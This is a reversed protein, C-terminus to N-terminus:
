DDDGRNPNGAAHERNRDQVMADLGLHRGQDVGDSSPGCVSCRPMRLVDDAGVSLDAFDYHVVRGVTFGFGSSLQNVLELELCGAVVHAFGPLNPGPARGADGAVAEYARYGEPAEVNAYRRRRFCEYCPTEGPLITPGVVGDLGAIQGLLLPTEIDHVLRNLRALADPRQRDAAHVVLDAAEIADPLEGRELSVVEDHSARASSTDGLGLFRVDEIGMEVADAALITAPRGSGVLTVTSSAVREMADASFQDTARLYGTVDERELAREGAYLLGEDQLVYIVELVDRRDAEDFADLIEEVANTGDLMAVLDALMGDEDDDTLDFVTGSWPGARFHVDDPSLRVPVLSPDIKPFAVLAERLSDSM